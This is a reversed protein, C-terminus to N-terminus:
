TRHRPEPMAHISICHTDNPFSSIGGGLPLGMRLSGEANAILIGARETTPAHELVLASYAEITDKAGSTVRETIPNGNSFETVKYRRM